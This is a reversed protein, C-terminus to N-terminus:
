FLEATIAIVIPIPNENASVIDISAVPKDPNPNVWEYAWFGRNEANRWAVKVRDSLDKQKASIWWDGVEVGCRIPIETKTGDPHRLVYSMVNGGASGWGADHLFFLRRLKEGGREGVRLGTVRDPVGHNKKSALSIIANGGNMDYRIIEFPVGRYTQRGWEEGHLSNEGEDTWGGKGDGAVSDAFARNAAERLDITLMKAGDFKFDNSNAKVQAKAAQALIEVKKVADAETLVPLPGFRKALETSKGIILVRKTNPALWLTAVGDKIEIKEKNFPDVMAASSEELEACKFRVCKPYADWNFLFFGTLGAGSFKRSEVNVESEGNDVRLLQCAPKVGSNEILGGLLGALAYDNMKANLLYIRGKGLARTLLAPDAGANALVEWGSHSALKRYVRASMAGPISTLRPFKGTLPVGNSEVTSGLKLNLFDSEPQPNGLEDQQMAELVLVLSGGNEVWKQVQKATGPYVNAVGPAILVKYRDLRGEPLQEELIMDYHFHSFDLAVGCNRIYNHALTGVAQSYRESPFSLLLATSTKARNQRPVFLDDVSLIEEKAQAIDALADSPVGYPNLVNYPYREALKKGGEEGRDAGWDPDWGRKTWHFVYAGSGGRALQLWFGDSASHASFYFEGDVLAKGEAISLYFHRGVMGEFRPSVFPTDITHEPAASLGGANPGELGGGTNLSVVKSLKSLEYMNINSKPLIRYYDAGMIQVTCDPSSKDITKILADGERCLATFSEEMFKCWEVLLAPNDSRSKFNGVEAFSAYSTRWAKNLTAIDTYEKTLHAVFADRNFRSPDDYAPENFLEYYLAKGGAAVIQRATDAFMKFHLEKGAPTLIAYPVWHNNSNGAAGVSNLAEPPVVKSQALAGQMWTACTMDVYLPLKVDRIMKAVNAEGNPEVVGGRAPDVGAVWVPPVFFGVSDFGLRQASEYTLPQEYIWKLEPAYGSTPAYTRLLWEAMEAGVFFRPKGEYTFNGQADVGVKPDPPLLFPPTLSKFDRFRSVDAKPQAVPTQPKLGASPNSEVAKTQPEGISIEGISIGSLVPNSSAFQLQVEVIGTPLGEGGKPLFKKLPISIPQWTAEDMDIAGGEMFSRIPLYPSAKTTGDSKLMVIGVQLPIASNLVQGGVKCRNIYLNLCKDNWEEERVIVARATQSPDVLRLRAGSWAQVDENKPAIRLSAKHEAMATTTDITIEDGGWAVMVWAPPLKDGGDYIAKPSQAAVGHGALWLSLLGACALRWRTTRTHIPKPKIRHM